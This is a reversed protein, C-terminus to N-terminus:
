PSRLRYFASASNVATTTVLSSGSVGVANTLASWSASAGLAGSAELVFNTAWLPWSLVVQSGSRSALLSPNSPPVLLVNPGLEVGYVVLLFDPIRFLPANPDYRGFNSGSETFVPSGIIIRADRPLDEGVVDDSVFKVVDANQSYHTGAVIYSGVPLEVPAALDVERWVGNLLTANTGAPVVVSFLLPANTYIGPNTSGAQFWLGIQHAHSLGAPNQDYWALGTLTAPDTLVFTWGYMGNTVLEFEDFGTFNGPPFPDANPDSVQTMPNINIALASAGVAVQAQLVASLALQILLSTKM